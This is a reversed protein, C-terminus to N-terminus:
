PPDDLTAAASSTPPHSQRSARTREGTSAREDSRAMAPMAISSQRDRRTGSRRPCPRVCAPTISPDDERKAAWLVQGFISAARLVRRAELALRAATDYGRPYSSSVQM